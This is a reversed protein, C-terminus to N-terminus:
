ADRSGRPPAPALTVRALDPVNTIIADVGMAALERMRGPEDVTWVNVALGHDHARGVLSADVTAHHPNIAAYGADALVALSIGGTGWRPDVTLLGVAVGPARQRVLDTTPRDFSSVVARGGWRAIVALAGVVLADDPPGGDHKLEVNVVLDRCAQLAAALDPVSAPVDARTCAGLARGDALDADHHVALSGDGLRRVDLEVGDAGLAVAAAFAAVTNEPHARSAGRHAWVEPRHTMAM